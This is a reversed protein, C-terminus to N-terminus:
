WLRKKAFAVGSGSKLYKEFALAKDKSKFCHLVILEWPKDDCTYISGGQNHTKLRNEIDTTYGLYKKEPNKLSILHYVYYVPLM